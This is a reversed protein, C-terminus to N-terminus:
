RRRETEHEKIRKRYIDLPKMENGIKVQWWTWGDTARNTCFKAAGSPSNFLEKHNGILLEINGDDKVIGRYTEGKYRKEITLPTKIIGSKILDYLTINSTYPTKNRQTNQPWTKVSNIFPSFMENLKKRVEEAERFLELENVLNLKLNRLDEPININNKQLINISKEVSNLQEFIERKRTIDWYPELEKILKELEEKLRTIHENWKNM